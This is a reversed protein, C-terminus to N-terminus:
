WKLILHYVSKRYRKMLEAFAKQDNERAKQVLLFDYKAKDSFEKDEIEM